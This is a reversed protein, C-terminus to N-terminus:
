NPDTNGEQMVNQIINLLCWSDNCFSDYLAEVNSERGCLSRLKKLLLRKSADHWKQLDPNISNRLLVNLLVLIYVDTNAVFSAVKGEVIKWTQQLEKSRLYEYNMLFPRAPLKKICASFESLDSSQTLFYLKHQNSPLHQSKAGTVTISANYSAPNIGQCSLKLGEEILRKNRENMIAFSKFMTEHRRECKGGYLDILGEITTSDFKVVRCVDEFYLKRLDTLWVSEEVTLVDSEFLLKANVLSICSKIPDNRSQQFKLAKILDGTSEAKDCKLLFVKQSLDEINRIRELEKLSLLDTERWQDTNYLFLNTLNSTHNPAFHRSFGSLRKLNNTFNKLIEPDKSPLLQGDKGNLLRFSIKGIPHWQYQGAIVYKM